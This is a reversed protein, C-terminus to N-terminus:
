SAVGLVRSAEQVQDWATRDGGHRDPHTARRAAKVYSATDLSAPMDLCHALIIQQATTTTM